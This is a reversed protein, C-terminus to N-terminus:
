KDKRVMERGRAQLETVQGPAVARHEEDKQAFSQEIAKCSGGDSPVARDGWGCNLPLLKMVHSVCYDELWSFVCM